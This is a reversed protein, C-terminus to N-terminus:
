SSVKETTYDKWYGITEQPINHGLEDHALKFIHYTHSQPLVTKEFVQKKDMFYWMLISNSIFYPHGPQLHNKNLM